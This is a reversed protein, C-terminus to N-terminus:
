PGIGIANLRERMDQRGKAPLAVDDALEVNRRMSDYIAIVTGDLIPGCHALLM